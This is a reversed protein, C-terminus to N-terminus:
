VERLLRFGLVYYGVDPTFSFRFASRCNDASVSWSGGRIVRYSLSGDEWTSGDTPAGEYNSHWSDQCWEWVNGYMDYLGWPNPKKQGVPRTKSGSNSSYWAYDGLISASNGFSYANTTDARAAYEWEAESPLRYKDTSEMENLKRVFEQVDNWSVSEVPNNDGKFHSPNDGMVAVWQEQTVEYRGLYYAQEITVKHIPQESDQENSGMMFEGAPILVFEMGISNTYIEFNSVTYPINSSNIDDVQDTWSGGIMPSFIWYGAILIIILIPIFLLKLSTNVGKPTTVPMKAPVPSPEPPASVQPVVTPKQSMQERELSGSSSDKKPNFYAEEKRKKEPELNKRQREEEQKILLSREKEERSDKLPATELAKNEEEDLKKQAHMLRTEEDVYAINSRQVVSDEIVVNVGCNGEIDCMDLLNSRQVVSDKIHVNVVRDRGSTREEIILKLDRGIEALLGTLVESSRTAAFLEMTQDETLISIKIVIDDKNIKTRGYYWIECNNGDRTYLTRIYRVDHKEVVERALIALKKVEFGSKVEYLRSDSSPLSVIFEKLRGINIDRDTKIIPCIVSIEKPEMWVSAMNGKHDAYMLHCRIDAAKACTLPEFLLTFTKSKNGYINGLMFKGNKVPFNDHEAIHLLNEDYIFDLSIDTIVYPSENSVSMKFRIYGQYFETERKINLPSDM